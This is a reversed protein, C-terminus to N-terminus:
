RGAKSWREVLPRSEGLVPDSKPFPLHSMRDADLLSPASRCIDWHQHPPYAGVVLFDPSSQLNCHGTGAPLLAVDGARVTIEHGGPGGLMLRATGAAFGVVEHATSHYHHFDFVGNRWQPPWGHAGFAAEFAEAPDKGTANIAGRYLLVPLLENNPVWGNRSLSLTELKMAQSAAFASAEHALGISALMGAFERRNVSKLFIDWATSAEAAIEGSREQKTATISTIRNYSALQGSCRSHWRM